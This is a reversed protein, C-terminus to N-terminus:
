KGGGTAPASTPNLAEETAEYMEREYDTMSEEAAEGSWYGYWQRLALELITSREKLRKVQEKLATVDGQEDGPPASIPKTEENPWELEMMWGGRHKGEHGMEERCCWREVSDDIFDCQHEVIPGAVFKEGDIPNSNNM